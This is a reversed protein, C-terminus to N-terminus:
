PTLTRVTALHTVRNRWSPLAPSSSPDDRGRPVDCIVRGTRTLKMPCSRSCCPNGAHAIAAARLERPRRHAGPQPAQAQIIRRDRWWTRNLALLPRLRAVQQMHIDLGEAAKTPDPMANM